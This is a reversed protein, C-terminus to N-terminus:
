VLKQTTVLSVHCFFDKLTAGVGRVPDVCCTSVAKLCTPGPFPKGGCSVDRNHWFLLPNLYFILQPTLVLTQQCKFYLICDFETLAPNVIWCEYSFLTAPIFYKCPPATSTALQCFPFFFMATARCSLFLLGCRFAFSFYFISMLRM